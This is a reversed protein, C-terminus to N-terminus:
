CRSDMLEDAGSYWGGPRSRLAVILFEQPREVVGLTTRAMAKPDGFLDHLLRFPDTGDLSKVGTRYTWFELGPGLDNARFWKGATPGIAGESLHDAFGSSVCGLHVHLQDQSRALRSNVILAVRGSVGESRKPIHSRQAWAHAFYNPSDAAQLQADELGVVKRTPTLITDPQGVPPRLVAFGREAGEGLDVELCPLPSGTTAQDLTCARVVQWLAGRSAVNAGYAVAASGLLAAGIMLTRRAWGIESLRLRSFLPARRPASRTMLAEMDPM